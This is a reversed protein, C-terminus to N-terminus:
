SEVERQGKLKEEDFLKIKNKGKKFEEAFDLTLDDLFKVFEDKNSMVSYKKDEIKKRIELFFEDAIGERELIEILRSAGDILRFPGYLKPEEVCNRASVVLFALFTFFDSKSQVKSKGGTSSKM